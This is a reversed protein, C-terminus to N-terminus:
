ITHIICISVNGEIPIPPIYKNAKSQHVSKPERIEEQDWHGCEKNKLRQMQGLNQLLTVIVTDLGLKLFSPSDRRPGGQDIGLEAEPGTEDM